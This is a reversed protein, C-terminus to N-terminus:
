LRLVQSLIKLLNCSPFWCVLRYVLRLLFFFARCNKELLTATCLSRSFPYIISFNNVISFNDYFYGLCVSKDCWYGMFYMCRMQITMCVSTLYVKYLMVFLVVDCFQMDLLKWKPWHDCVLNLKVSKLTFFCRAYCLLCCWMFTSSSLKWKFPWVCVSERDRQTPNWSGVVQYLM